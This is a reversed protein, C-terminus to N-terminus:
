AAKVGPPWFVLHLKEIQEGRLFYTAFFVVSVKEGTKLPGFLFDARDATATFTAEVEAMIRNGERLVLLPRLEERIAVHTFKLMSIWAERGHMVRDPGQVVVDETYYKNVTAADDNGGDGHGNFDAFYRDLDFKM